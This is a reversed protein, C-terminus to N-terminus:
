RSSQVTIFTRNEVSATKVVKWESLKTKRCGPCRYDHKLIRYQELSVAYNCNSCVKTKDITSM